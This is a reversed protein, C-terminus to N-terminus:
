SLDPAQSLGWKLIMKLFIQPRLPYKRLVSYLYRVVHNSDMRCLAKRGVWLFNQELSLMVHLKRIKRYQPRSLFEPPTRTAVAFVFFLYYLIPVCTMRRSELLLQSNQFKLHQCSRVCGWHSLTLQVASTHAYYMKPLIDLDGGLMEVTMVKRHAM